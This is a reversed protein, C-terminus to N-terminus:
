NGIFLLLAPLLHVPLRREGPAPVGRLLFVVGPVPADELDGTGRRSAPLSGIDGSDRPMGGRHAWCALTKQPLLQLVTLSLLLLVPSLLEYFRRSDELFYVPTPPACCDSRKLCRSSPTCWTAENKSREQM